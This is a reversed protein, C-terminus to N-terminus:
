YPVLPFAVTCVHYIFTSNTLLTQALKANRAKSGPNKNTDFGYSAAVACEINMKMDTLFVMSSDAFQHIVRFHPINHCFLAGAMVQEQFPPSSNTEARMCADSWVAAIWEAKKEPSPFADKCSLYCRYLSQAIRKARELM